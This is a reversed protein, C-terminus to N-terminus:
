WKFQRRYKKLREGLEKSTSVLRPLIKKIREYLQELINQDLGMKTWHDIWWTKFEEDTMTKYLDYGWKHRKKRHGILQNVARKYMNIRFPNKEVGRLSSEVIRDVTISLMRLAHYQTLRESKHMDTMEDLTQYNAFALHTARFRGTAKRVRYDFYQIIKPAFFVGNKPKSSKYFETNQMLNGYGLPTLGLIFGGHAHALYPIKVKIKRKDYTEVEVEVEESGKRGLKTYGLIGLGFLYGERLLSDFLSIRNFIERLIGEDINFKEKFTKLYTRLGELSYNRKYYELVAGRILERIIPPDYYSRGFKSIGYIGKKYQWTKVDPLFEDKINDIIFREFDLKPPIEIEYYEKMFQKYDEGVDIKDIKIKTGKLWEETTPLEVKFDFNMPELEDPSFGFTEVLSIEINLYLFLALYSREQFLPEVDSIRDFNVNVANLSLVKNYYKKKQQNIKLLDYLSAGM